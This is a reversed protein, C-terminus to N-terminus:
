LHNLIIKLHLLFLSKGPIMQSQLELRNYIIRLPESKLRKEMALYDSIEVVM